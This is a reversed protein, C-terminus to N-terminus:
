VKISGDADEKQERALKRKLKARENRRLDYARVQCSRSCYAQRVSGPAFETKCTACMIYEILAVFEHNCNPCAVGALLDSNHKYTM